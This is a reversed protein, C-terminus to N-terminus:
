AQTKLKDELYEKLVVANNHTEDKAAYVLTVDGERAADLLPRWHAPNEDLEVIYRRRFETWKDADHGFWKRLESSPAVEKPWAEIQLAEKKVGRPWLRDILYRTGDDSSVPEYARKIRIM